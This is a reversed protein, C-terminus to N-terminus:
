IKQKQLIEKFSFYDSKERIVLNHFYKCMWNLQYESVEPLLTKIRPAWHAKIQQNIFQEDM